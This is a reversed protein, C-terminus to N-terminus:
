RHDRMIDNVMIFGSSEEARQDISLLNGEQGAFGIADLM